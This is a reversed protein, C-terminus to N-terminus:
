NKPYVAQKQMIPSWKKCCIVMTFYRSPSSAMLGSVQPELCLPMQDRNILGLLATFDYHSGNLIGRNTQVTCGRCCQGKGEQIWGCFWLENAQCNVEVADWDWGETWFPIQPKPSLNQGCVNPGTSLSAIKIYINKSLYNKRMLQCSYHGAKYPKVLFALPRGEQM